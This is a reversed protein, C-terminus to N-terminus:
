SKERLTVDYTLGLSDLIADLLEVPINRRGTVIQNVFGPTTGIKQAMQAQYGRPQELMKQRITEQAEPWKVFDIYNM